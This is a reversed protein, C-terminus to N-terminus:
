SCPKTVSKALKFHENTVKLSNLVEAEIKDDDIDIMDMKERICQLGAEFCIAALDSGVFGETDKAISSLDVDDLLNMKKSHVELIELRGEEDSSGFEIEKDFRGFRRIAPDLSNPRVTAGICM